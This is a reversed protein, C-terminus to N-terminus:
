HGAFKLSERTEVTGARPNCAWSMKYMSELPKFKAKAQRCLLCMAWPAM